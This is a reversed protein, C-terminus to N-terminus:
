CTNSTAGSLYPAKIQQCDCLSIIGSSLHYIGDKGTTDSIEINKLSAIVGQVPNGNEDIVRGKLDIVQASLSSLFLFTITKLILSFHKNM